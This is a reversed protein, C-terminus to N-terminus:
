QSQGKKGSIPKQQPKNALQDVYDMSVCLGAGTLYAVRKIAEVKNGALILQRLETEIHRPLQITNTTQDYPFAPKVKKRTKAFARELLELILPERRKKAM